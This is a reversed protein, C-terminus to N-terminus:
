DIPHVTVDMSRLPFASSLPVVDAEVSFAQYLKYSESGNLRACTQNIDPVPKSGYQDPVGFGVHGEFCRGILELREEAVVRGNDGEVKFPDVVGVPVTHGDHGDRGHHPGKLPDASRQMHSGGVSEGGAVLDDGLDVAAAEGDGRLVVDGELEADGEELDGRGARTRGM